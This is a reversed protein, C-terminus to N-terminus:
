LPVRQWLLYGTLGAVLWQAPLDDDVAALPAAWVLYWPVLYPSACLLLAACLGLRARGRLAARALWLYAGAFAVAFLAVALSSPV